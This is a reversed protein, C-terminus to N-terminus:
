NNKSERRGPTTTNLIHKAQMATEQNLAAPAAQQSPKANKSFWM